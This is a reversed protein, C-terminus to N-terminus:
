YSPSLVEYEPAPAPQRARVEGRSRGALLDLAWCGRYHPGPERCHGLLVPDACGAEELADALVGLDRFRRGDYLSRALKGVAGDHWALWSRRVLVPRFPNGVVCRLVRCQAAKEAAKAAQFALFWRDGERGAGPSCPPDAVADAATGAVADLAWLSARVAADAAEPYAANAAAAEAAVQVAWPPVVTDELWAAPGYAVRLEEKRAEGDAYRECVHVARRSRDHPLLGWIRRCCAAAFLRLKRDSVRGYLGDLLRQPDTGALYEAETMM